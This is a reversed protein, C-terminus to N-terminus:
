EHISEYESAHATNGYMYRYQSIFREYPDRVTVLFTGVHYKKDLVPIPVHKKQSCVKQRANKDQVITNHISTSGTKPVRM